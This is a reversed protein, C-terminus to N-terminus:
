AVQTGSSKTWVIIETILDEQLWTFSWETPHPMDQPHTAKNHRIRVVGDTIDDIVGENEQIALAAIGRTAPHSDDHVTAERPDRWTVTVRQGLYSRGIKM